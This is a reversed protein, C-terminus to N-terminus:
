YQWCARLHTGDMLVHGGALAVFKSFISEGKWLFWESGIVALLGEALLPVMYCGSGEARSHQSAQNQAPRLTSFWLHQSSELTVAM